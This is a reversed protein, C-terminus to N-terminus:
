ASSCVEKLWHRAPDAPALHNKLARMAREEDEHSAPFRGARILHVFLGAPSEGVRLAYAATSLFAVIGDESRAVLGRSAAHRYLALLSPV